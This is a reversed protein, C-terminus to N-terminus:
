AQFCSRLIHFAIDPVFQIRIQKALAHCKVAKLRDAIDHGPRRIIDPFHIVEEARAHGHHHSRDYEQENRDNVAHM